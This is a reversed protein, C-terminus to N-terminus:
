KGVGSIWGPLLALLISSEAMEATLVGTQGLVWVALCVLILGKAAGLLAGGLENMQRIGPLKEAVRLVRAAQRLLFSIVAFLVACLISRVVDRVVSDLAADAMSRGLEELPAMLAGGLPQDPPLMGDLAGRAQERIFENPIADLVEGMNRRLEEITSAEAERSLEGARREIAAYTAPRIYRDVIVPAATRSIQTSLILAAAAATLGLLSRILGKKWGSAAFALLVVAIVGDIM